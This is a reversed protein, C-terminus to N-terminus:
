PELQWISVRHNWANAVAMGNKEAACVGTPVNLTAAGAASKCNRGEDGTSRQGIVWDTKSMEHEPRKAGIRALLVSAGNIEKPVLAGHPIEEITTAFIWLKNRGLAFPSVFNVPTENANTCVGKARNIVTIEPYYEKIAKEVGETLNGKLFLTVASTFMDWM